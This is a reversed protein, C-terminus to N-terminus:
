VRHPPRKLSAGSFRDHDPVRLALLGLLMDLPYGNEAPDHETHMQEGGSSDRHVQEQVQATIAGEV